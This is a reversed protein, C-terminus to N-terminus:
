FLKKLDIPKWSKIARVRPKWAQKGEKTRYQDVSFDVEATRPFTEEQEQSNPITGQPIETYQQEQFIEYLAKGECDFMAFRFYQKSTDKKGDFAAFNLIIAKM